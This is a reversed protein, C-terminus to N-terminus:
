WKKTFWIDVYTGSSGSFVVQLWRFGRQALDYTYTGNTTIPIVSTTPQTITVSDLGNYRPQEGLSSTQTSSGLGTIGGVPSSISDENSCNLSLTGTPASAGYFRVSVSFGFADKVNLWPSNFSYGTGSWNMIYGDVFSAYGDPNQGGQRAMDQAVNYVFNAM